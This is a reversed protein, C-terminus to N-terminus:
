FLLSIYPFYLYWRSQKRWVKKLLLGFTWLAAGFTMVFFSIRIPDKPNRLLVYFSLTTLLISFLILVPTCFEM